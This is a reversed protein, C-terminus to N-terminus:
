RTVIMEKEAATRVKAYLSKFIKPEIHDPLCENLYEELLDEDSEIEIVDIDDNELVRNIIDTVKSTVSGIHQKSYSFCIESLQTVLNDFLGDDGDDVLIKVIKNRYRELEDVTYIRNEFKMVEFMSIDLRYFKLDVTESDLIHVGHEGHYEAWNLGLMTGLYQINGIKERLHFHGSLVMDFGKFVSANLGHDCPKGGSTMRFGNVELHGLVIGGNKRERIVDRIDSEKCIWPIFVLNDIRTIDEIVHVNDYRDLLLESIINCERKNRYYMDHNGIIFYVDKFDRRLPALFDNRFTHMVHTSNNIRNDFVDGLIIISDVNNDKFIRLSKYFAKMQWDLIIKSNKKMGFHIDTMLGYKM